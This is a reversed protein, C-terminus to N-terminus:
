DGQWSEGEPLVGEARPTCRPLAYMALIEVVANDDNASTGEPDIAVSVCFRTFGSLDRVVPLVFTSWQGEDSDDRTITVQYSQWRGRAPDSRDFSWVRVQVPVAAGTTVHSRIFLGCHLVDAVLPVRRYRLFGMHLFHGTARPAARLVKQTAADPDTTFQHPSRFVENVVPSMTRGMATACHRAAMMAQPGFFTGEDSTSTDVHLVPSSVHAVFDPVDGPTTHQGREQLLGHPLAAHDFAFVLVDVGSDGIVTESDTSDGVSRVASVFEARAVDSGQSAVIEHLLADDADTADPNDRITWSLVFELPTSGVSGPLAPMAVLVTTGSANPWFISLVGASVSISEQHTASATDPVNSWLDYDGDDCEFVLTMSRDRDVAFRADNTATMVGSSVPIGIGHQSLDSGLGELAVTAFVTHENAYANDGQELIPM